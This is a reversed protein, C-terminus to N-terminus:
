LNISTIEYNSKKVLSKRGLTRKFKSKFLKENSNIGINFDPRTSVEEHILHIAASSGKYKFKFGYSLMRRRFENDDFGSGKRYREDFGGVEFFSSRRMLSLFNLDTKRYDPHCYWSGYLNSWIYGNRGLNKELEPEFSTYIEMFANHSESSILRLNLDNDTLAFVNFFLCEKKGVGSNGMAIFISETHVIEPSTLLILEGSAEAVGINIPICPNIGDKNLITVLKTPLTFEAPLHPKMEPHSGDDVIVIEVQSESYLAQFSRLTIALVEPREFYPLIISVRASSSM